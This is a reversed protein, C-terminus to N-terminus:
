RTGGQVISAAHTRGLPTDLPNVMTVSGGTCAGRHGGAYLSGFQYRGGGLANGAPATFLAWSVPVADCSVAGGYYESFNTVSGILDVRTDGPIRIGGLPYEVGTKTDLDLNWSCCGNFNWYAYLNANQHQQAHATSPLFLGAAGLVLLLALLSLRRAPRAVGESQLGASRAAALDGPPALFLKQAPM